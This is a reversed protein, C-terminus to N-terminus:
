PRRDPIQGVNLRNEFSARPLLGGDFHALEMLTKGPSKIRVRWPTADRERPASAATLLSPPSVMAATLSARRSPVIPVGLAVLRRVRKPGLCADTVRNFYLRAAGASCLVGSGM